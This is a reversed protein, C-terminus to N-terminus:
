DIPCDIEDLDLPVPQVFEPGRGVDICTAENAKELAYQWTAQIRRILEAPHDAMSVAVVAAQVGIAVAHGEYLFRTKGLLQRIREVPMVGDDPSVDDSFWVLQYDAIRLVCRDKRLQGSIRAQVAKLLLEGMHQQADPDRITVMFGSLCATEEERDSNERWMELQQSLVTEPPEEVAPAPPDLPTLVLKQTAPDWAAPRTPPTPPLQRVAAYEVEESLDSQAAAPDPPQWAPAAPAPPDLMDPHAIDPHAIDPHAIHKARAFLLSPSFYRVTVAEDLDSWRKPGRGILLASAFGLFLNALAIGAIVTLTLTVSFM